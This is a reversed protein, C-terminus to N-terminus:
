VISNIRTRRRRKKDIYGKKRTAGMGFLSVTMSRNWGERKFLVKNLLLM